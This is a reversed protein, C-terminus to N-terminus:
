KWGLGMKTPNWNRPVIKPGPKPAGIEKGLTPIEPNGGLPNPKFVPFEKGLFRFQPGPFLSQAGGMQLPMPIKPPLNNLGPPAGNPKGPFKKGGTSGM